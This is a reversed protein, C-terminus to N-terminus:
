LLLLHIDVYIHPPSISVICKSFTENNMWQEAVVIIVIDQNLNAQVLKYFIQILLNTYLNVVM